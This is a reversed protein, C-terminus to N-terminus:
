RRNAPATRASSSMSPAARIDLDAQKVAVTGSYVKTVDELRLIVDHESNAAIM